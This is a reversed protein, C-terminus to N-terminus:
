RQTGYASLLFQLDALDVDGDEDFDADSNFNPDGSSKGYSALLLQLDALDVDGDGDLDGPVSVPSCELEFALEFSSLMWDEPMTAAYAAGPISYPEDDATGAYWGWTETSSATDNYIELWYTGPDLAYDLDVTYEYDGDGLSTRTAAIPSFTVLAEGPYNGLAERIIVTFADTPVEDGPTYAGWFRITSLMTEEFIRFNDALVQVGPENPDCYDCAIDSGYANGGALVPQSPCRCDGCDEPCTACNEGGEWQCNGDGCVLPVCSGYITMGTPLSGSGEGDCALTTGDLAQICYATLHDWAGDYRGKHWVTTIEEGEAADFYLTKSGEGEVLTLGLYRPLGGVYVDVSADIWGFWGYQPPNEDYLTISHQCGEYQGCPPDFVATACTEGPIFRGDCQAFVTEICTGTDEDCCVGPMGCGPDLDACDTDYTWQLPPQCDQLLVDNTCTGTDPDCCAGLLDSAPCRVINAMLDPWQGPGSVGGDFGAVYYVSRDYWFAVAISDVDYQDHLLGDYWAMPGVDTVLDRWPTGYFDVGDHICDTGDGAYDGGQWDMGEIYVLEYENALRGELYNYQGAGSLAWMGLIVRGGAEAYDALVDGM